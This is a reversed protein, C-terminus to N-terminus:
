LLLRCVLNLHSQLESTHEESRTAAARPASARTPSRTTSIAAAWDSAAAASTSAATGPATSAKRALSAPASRSHSRQAQLSPKRTCGQEKESTILAHAGPSLLMAARRTFALRWRTFSLLFFPAM